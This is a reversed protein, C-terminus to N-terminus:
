QFDAPTAGTLGFDAYEGAIAPNLSKADEFDQEAQAKQGLRQWAIARGYLASSHKPNLKLATTYDAIAASLAGRQLNVLGRSDLAAVFGPSQRLAENCDALADDLENLLARTWCRNNRSELDDPNLRLVRDLDSLALRFEGHQALIQGRESLSSPDNPNREISKDLTEKRAIEAASYTKNSTRPTGATKLTQATATTLTAPAVPKALAADSQARPTEALNSPKPTESGETKRTEANPPALPETATTQLMTSVSGRGLLGIAIFSVAALSAVAAGGIKMRRSIRSLPAVTRTGDVVAKDLLGVQQTADPETAAPKQAETATPDTDQVSSFTRITRAINKFKQDGMDRFALKIRDRVEEYVKNSICIGGPDAVTQLRAAVNIGDGYLREGDQIVDGVNVGIRFVMLPESESNLTKMCNQVAAAGQVARVASPFEALIGDGALDIIRGGFHQLIPLVAQRVIKLKRVTGEEDASMLASYDVIDASLIAALKRNSIQEDVVKMSWIQLESNMLLAYM